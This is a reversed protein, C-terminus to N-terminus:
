SARSNNCGDKIWLVDRPRLFESVPTLSYPPLLNGAPHTCTHIHTHTAKKKKKKGCCSSQSINTPGLLWFFIQESIWFIKCPAAPKFTTPLLQSQWSTPILFGDPIRRSSCSSSSGQCSGGCLSGPLLSPSRSIM